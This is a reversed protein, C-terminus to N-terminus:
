QVSRETKSGPMSEVSRGAVAPEQLFGEALREVVDAAPKIAAAVTESLGMAGEDGGLSRPECLVLVIRECLNEHGALSKLVTAPDLNHAMAAMNQPSPEEKPEVISITGPVEGCQACDLLVVMEYGGTLAYALDVGCIGFDVLEVEARLTRASLSRVVEVGFADDGEFINGVGGVLIRKM